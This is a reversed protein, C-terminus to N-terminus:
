MCLICYVVSKSSPQFSIVELTYTSNSLYLNIAAEINSTINESPQLDMEFSIRTTVYSNGFAIFTLLDSKPNM